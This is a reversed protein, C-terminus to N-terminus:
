SGPVSLAEIYSTLSEDETFFHTYEDFHEKLFLVVANRLEIHTFDCHSCLSHFQCNGDAPAPIRKLDCQALKADIIAWVNQKGDIFM